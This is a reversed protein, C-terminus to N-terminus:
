VTSNKNALYQIVLQMYMSCIVSNTEIKTQLSCLLYDLVTKQLLNGFVQNANNILVLMCVDLAAIREHNAADSTSLHNYYYSISVRCNYQRKHTNLEETLLLITKSSQLSLRDCSM